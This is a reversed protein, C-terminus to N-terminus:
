SSSSRSRTRAGELAALLGRGAVGADRHEAVGVLRDVHHHLGPVQERRHRVDDAVVHGEDVPQM